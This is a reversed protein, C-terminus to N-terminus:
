LIEPEMKSSGSVDEHLFVINAIIWLAVMLISHIIQSAKASRAGYEDLGMIEKRFAKVNTKFITNKERMYGLKLGCTNHTYIGVFGSVDNLSPFFQLQMICLSLSKDNDNFELSQLFELTTNKYSEM